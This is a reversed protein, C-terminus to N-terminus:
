GKGIFRRNIAYSLAEKCSKPKPFEIFCSYFKSAWPYQKIWNDRGDKAVERAYWGNTSHYTHKNTEAQLDCGCVPEDPGVANNNWKM